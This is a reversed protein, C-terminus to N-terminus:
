RSHLAAGGDSPRPAHPEGAVESREIWIADLVTQPIFLYYPTDLVRGDLRHIPKKSRPRVVEVPLFQHVGPEFEEILARAEPCVAPRAHINVFDPITKPGAELIVRARPM